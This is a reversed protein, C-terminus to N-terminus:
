FNVLVAFFFDFSLCDHDSIILNYILVLFLKFIVLEIYFAETSKSLIFKAKFIAKLTIM